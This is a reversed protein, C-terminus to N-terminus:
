AARSSATPTRAAGAPSPTSFGAVGQDQWLYMHGRYLWWSAGAEEDKVSNVTGSGPDVFATLYTPEVTEPSGEPPPVEGYVQYVGRGNRPLTLGYSEAGEPFEELAADTAAQPGVDGPTARYRDGDFWSEIAQHGVLWAGTPPSSSSGRWSFWRWGATSSSWSM